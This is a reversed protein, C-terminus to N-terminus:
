KEKKCTKIQTILNKINMSRRIKMAVEKGIMLSGIWFIIESLVMMAGTLGVIICTSFPLCVNFPMIIYFLFSLVILSIAIIKYTRQNGIICKM